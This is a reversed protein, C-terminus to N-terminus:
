FVYKVYIKHETENDSYILINNLYVTCFKNLYKWLIDNIYKQFSAPKNCLSFLMILYKFLSFCIHFVIFIKDKEKIQFINFASIINLKTFIKIHNLHNYIKSILLLLYHNKVTIVNLGKYNVCFHFRKKFKKIFLVPAATQM